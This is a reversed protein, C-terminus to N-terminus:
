SGLELYGYGDEEWTYGLSAGSVDKLRWGSGEPAINAETLKEGDYLYIVDFRDLQMTDHNWPQYMPNAPMPTVKPPKKIDARCELAGSLAWDSETVGHIHEHWLYNCDELYSPEVNLVAIDTSGDLRADAKLRDYLIDTFAADNKTTERYDHLESVSAVCFVLVAAVAVVAAMEGPKKTRCVLFAVVADAVLAIGCFSCVTGRLSFWVNGAVFFPALPAVALLVGVIVNALKRGCRGDDRRALRYFLFALVILAAAYIWNKDALLMAAGRKAGKAITYIGGGAFASKLQELVLPFFSKWYYSSFPLVYGTKNGYLPSNPFSSVFAFYLGMSIFSFICWISRRKVERGAVIAILVTAACSLVIIQEYFGYAVIQLVIYLLLHLKKGKECWSDFCLLSLSAFFLGTVIRTAASMWYTGEFGLPLLAYVAIFVYGTGFHRNFVRKFACASVAYMGSIIAVGVIMRSFFRTWVTIDAIGALPRAALLGLTSIITQVSGRHAAYNYYQIYDDLQYYYEFGYYCYRFFILAFVVLFLLLWRESREERKLHRAM